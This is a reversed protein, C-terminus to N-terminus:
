NHHHLNHVIERIEAAEKLASLGGCLSDYPIVSGVTIDFRAGRCLFVEAPLRIMEINFKLGLKTRLKAFNYFFSSNHGGFHLPVIDRQSSIARNVFMKNWRLDAIKGSDNKRSVMGAPFIIIPMESDFAIDMAEVDARKQKGHKNIPLFTDHLPTVASLLDNVVVKVPTQYYSSILDILVIGDLGGLPHNSVFLARKHSDPPLMGDVQYKIDLEEIVKHCFAADKLGRTAELMANLETQRIFKELWTVAFGPIIRRYREPLRERLVSKIDIKHLENESM